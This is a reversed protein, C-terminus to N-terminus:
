VLARRSIEDETALREKLHALQDQMSSVVRDLSSFDVSVAVLDEFRLEEQEFLSKYTNALSNLQNVQRQIAQRAQRLEEARQTFRAQDRKAIGISQNLETIRSEAAQIAASIQGAAEDTGSPKPVLAPRVNAAVEAQQLALQRVLDKRYSTARKRELAVVAENRTHLEQTATDIEQTAQASLFDVLAQLSRVGYREAEPVYGFIVENLKQRFDDDDINSCIKELYKQPLYEIQEPLVEDVAADLQAHSVPGAYWLAEAVFNSACGDKLFKDRNLFSFLEEGRTSYHQNHTNGLLGLIDTIASKGSGKNGIIAILEKNLEIEEEQFWQGMRGRYTPLANIRLTKLYRRPLRRVRAEVEPEEGIHIRGQPEFLIQRLGEFTLHGKIWTCQKFIKGDRPVVRGLWQILNEFSHAHSGSIVPKPPTPEVSELRDTDLFYKTSESNGFFGDSLKDLEDSIVERRKVGRAARIGDNNVAAILLVHDTRDAKPGFTEALAKEIAQRTTTAGDYDSTTRLESAMMPRGRVDTKTTQLRDLFERVKEPHLPAFIAHVNVHEHNKNVIDSTCLELNPFLRCESDPYRRTFEEVAKFYGDASFYDAIGFAYVDSQELIRCYHDWVDGSEHRYGDSKKTGPAHLHLDWKRWESGRM